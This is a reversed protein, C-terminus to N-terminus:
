FGQASIKSGIRYDMGFQELGGLIAVIMSQGITVRIQRNVYEMRGKGPIAIRSSSRIHRSKIGDCTMNGESLKYPSDRTSSSCSFRKCGAYSRSISFIM